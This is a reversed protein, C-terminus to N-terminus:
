AFITFYFSFHEPLFESVGEPVGMELNVEPALAFARKSFLRLRAQTRSHLNTTALQLDLHPSGSPDPGM